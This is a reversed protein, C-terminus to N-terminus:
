RKSPMVFGNSAFKGGQYTEAIDDNERVGELQAAFRDASHRPMYGLAAARSNDYWSRSNASVGYVVDNLQSSKLGIKVLSALDEPHVWHSLMRADLPEAGCYGIRIGLAQLGSKEAHMSALAEMFVKTVGYRSDPKPFVRSDITESRRYFGVAHNSSAYVIRKVGSAVCADWLKAVALVNAELLVSWDAERPYGAFHVVADVGALLRTLSDDDNLNAQHFTENELLTDVSAIDTLRMEDCMGVLFPRVQRAVKGNAGTFLICKSKM